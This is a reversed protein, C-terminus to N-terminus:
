HSIKKSGITFVLRARYKNLRRRKNFMDLWEGCMSAIAREVGRTDDRSLKLRYKTQDHVSLIQGIDEKSRDAAKMSDKFSDYQDVWRPQLDDILDGPEIDRTEQILLKQSMDERWQKPHKFTKKSLSDNEGVKAAGTEDDVPYPLPPQRGMDQQIQLVAQSTKLRKGMVGFNFRNSFLDKQEMNLLQDGTVGQEEFMDAHRPNVGRGRLYEATHAPDWDKMAEATLAPAITEEGAMNNRMEAMADLDAGESPYSRANSPLLDDNGPEYDDPFSRDGGGLLEDEPYPQSNEDYQDNDAYQQDPEQMYAPDDLDDGGAYPQTMAQEDLHGDNFRDDDAAGYGNDGFSELPEEGYQEGVQDYPEGFEPDQPQSAMVFEHSSHYYLADIAICPFESCHSLIVSPSFSLLSRGLSCFVAINPVRYPFQALM